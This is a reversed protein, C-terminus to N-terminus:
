ERVTVALLESLLHGRLLETSTTTVTFSTLSLLGTNLSSTYLVVTASFMAMEEVRRVMRASSASLFTLQDVGGSGESWHRGRRCDGLLSTM